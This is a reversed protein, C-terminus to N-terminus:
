LGRIPLSSYLSLSTDGESDESPNLVKLATNDLEGGYTVIRMLSKRARDQEMLRAQEGQQAQHMSVSGIPVVLDAIYLSAMARLRLYQQNRSYPMDQMLVDMRKTIDQMASLAQLRLEDKQRMQGAEFSETDDSGFSDDHGFSERRCDENAGSSLQELALIHEAHTNYIECSFMAIWFDFASVIKPTKYDYPHQQILTDFYAKVKGMNAARGWRKMPISAKEHDEEREQSSDEGERMLIEAGIAWLDHHRVDIPLGSPRLQLLLGYTRAAKEIEGRDLFNHTSQLLVDFHGGRKRSTAKKSKPRAAEDGETEPDEDSEAEVASTGHEVLGRHPFDRIRQSPDEDTESLGAIAFQAVIGPSHSLPNISDTPLSSPFDDDTAEPRKRKNSQNQQSFFPPDLLSTM